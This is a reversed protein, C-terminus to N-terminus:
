MGALVKRPTSLAGLCHCMGGGMRNLLVLSVM